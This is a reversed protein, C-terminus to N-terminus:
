SAQHFVKTSENPQSSFHGLALTDYETPPIQPADRWMNEIGYYTRIDERFIHVIIDRYDLLIWNAAAKGELTAHDKFRRAMEQRIAEAIAKVQRESNGSCIVFYDAISTLHEVQLVMVDSAQKDLAM